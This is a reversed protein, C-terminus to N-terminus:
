DIGRHERLCVRKFDQRCDQCAVQSIFIAPVFLVFQVDVCESFDIVSSNMGVESLM